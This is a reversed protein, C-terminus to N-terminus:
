VALLAVACGQEVLQGDQEVENLSAPQHWINEQGENYRSCSRQDMRSALAMQSSVGDSHFRGVKGWTGIKHAIPRYRQESRETVVRLARVNSTPRELPKGDGLQPLKRENSGM